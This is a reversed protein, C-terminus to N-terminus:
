SQRARKFRLLLRVVRNRLTLYSRWAGVNPLRDFYDYYRLCVARHVDRLLSPTYKSGIYRGILSAGEERASRIGSRRLGEIWLYFSRSDKWISYRAKERMLDRLDQCERKEFDPQNWFESLDIGEEKLSRLLRSADLVSRGAWEAIIHSRGGTDYVALVNRCCDIYRLRSARPSLNARALTSGPRRALVIVDGLEGLLQAGHMASGESFVLAKAEAYTEIQESLSANEPYFVEFGAKAFVKDLYDEAIFRFAQKSRSVFVSRNRRLSGLNRLVHSQLEDLYDQCPVVASVQRAVHDDLLEPQPVVYLIEFETPEIVIMRRDEPIGYWEFLANLLGLGKGLGYPDSVDSFVLV